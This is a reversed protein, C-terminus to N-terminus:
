VIIETKCLILSLPSNSATSPYGSSESSSPGRPFHFSHLSPIEGHLAADATRHFCIMLSENDDYLFWDRGYQGYFLFCWGIGFRWLIM